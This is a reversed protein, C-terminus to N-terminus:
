AGGIGRSVPFITEGFAVRDREWAFSINCQLHHHCGPRSQTLSRRFVVSALLRTSSGNSGWSRVLAWLVSGSLMQALPLRALPLDIDKLGSMILPQMAGAIPPTDKIRVIGKSGRRRHVAGAHLVQADTGPCRIERRPSGIRRVSLQDRAAKRSASGSGHLVGHGASQRRHEKMVAAFDDPKFPVGAATGVAIVERVADELLARTGPTERIPGATAGTLAMLGSGPALQAFKMWVNYRIDGTLVADIGAAKCAAHFAELQSSAKGDPDGFEIRAFPTKHEILGPRAIHSSIRAVGPVVRAAPLAAAIIEPGEIGNQLSIVTTGARVVPRMSRAARETDGLKTAFIVIEPQGAEAPDAVAKAPKVTLNGLPSIIQFGDRLIVDLHAGRAIFTVDNGSGALRGGVYGGVGGSGMVLIKM